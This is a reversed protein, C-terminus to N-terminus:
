DYKGEKEASWTGDYPSDDGGFMSGWDVEAAATVGQGILSNITAQNGAAQQGFAAAYGGSAAASNQYSTQLNAGAAFQNSGAAGILNNFFQSEPNAGISSM